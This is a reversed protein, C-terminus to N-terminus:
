GVAKIVYKTSRGQYRKEISGSMMESVLARHTSAKSLGLVEIAEIMGFENGTGFAQQLKQKTSLNELAQFSDKSLVIGMPKLQILQYRRKTCKVSLPISNEQFWTRLRKLAQHVVTPSHDAIFHSGPFGSSYIGGVRVPNYFDRLLTMLMRHIQPTIEIPKRNFHVQLESLDLVAGNKDGWVYRKEIKARPFRRRIQSRFEEYPTGFYLHNFLEDNFKIQLSKYACHRHSEFEGLAVAEEMTKALEATRKSRLSENIAIQRHILFADSTQSDGFIEMAQNLDKSSNTLDRRQEFAQARIHLSNALLRAYSKRAAENAARTSIAIASDIDGAGLLAEALNVDGALRLYEDKQVRVYKKLLPIAKSHEWVEFYCWAKAMLAESVSHTTVHKLVDLAETVCGILTLLNAYEAKFELSQRDVTQKKSIQRQLVKIGASIQGTRRALRAVRIADNTSVKSLPIKKFNRAAKFVQGSRLLEESAEILKLYSM